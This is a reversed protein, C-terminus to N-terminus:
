VFVLTKNRDSVSTEAIASTAGGSPTNDYYWVSLDTYIKPFFLMNDSGYHTSRLLVSNTLDLSIM